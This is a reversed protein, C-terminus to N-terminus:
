QLKLDIQSKTYYDELSIQDIQDQLDQGEAKSMYTNVINNGNADAQAKPVASNGLSLGLAYGIAQNIQDGTYNIQITEDLNVQPTESM